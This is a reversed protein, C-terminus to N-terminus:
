QAADVIYPLGLGLLTQDSTLFTLGEVYAQALLMRDFPDHRTLSQFSAIAEAHKASFDLELLGHGTAAESLAPMKKSKGAMFKIQLEAVSLGSMYVSDSTEIIRRAQKGINRSKKPSALWVLANTDLLVKV